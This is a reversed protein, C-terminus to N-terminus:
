CPEWEGSLPSWRLCQPQGLAASASCPAWKGSSSWGKVESASISPVSLATLPLLNGKMKTQERGDDEPNTKLFSTQSAEVENVSTEYVQALLDKFTIDLVSDAQEASSSCKGTSWWWEIGNTFGHLQKIELDIM